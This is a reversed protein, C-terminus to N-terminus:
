TKRKCKKEKVLRKLKERKRKKKALRTKKEQFHM